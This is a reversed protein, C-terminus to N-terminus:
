KDENKNTKPKLLNTIGLILLVGSIAIGVWGLFFYNTASSALELLFYVAIIFAIILLVLVPVKWYNM